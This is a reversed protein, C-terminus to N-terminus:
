KEFIQVRNGDPDTIIIMRKGSTPDNVVNGYFDVNHQTLHEIWKDFESVLFGIKFFGNIRTKNTYNPIADEVSVANNLEILEILIDDRKLNSQKFGREESEIKSLVEFGLVNTYWSMSADLDKVIIASFYAELDLSSENQTYSLFSFCLLFSLLAIKKM